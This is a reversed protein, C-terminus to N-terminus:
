GEYGHYINKRPADELLRKGLRRMFRRHNKKVWSHYNGARGRREGNHSLGDAAPSGHWETQEARLSM